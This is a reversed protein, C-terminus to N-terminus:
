CDVVSLALGGTRDGQVQAVHGEGTRRLAEVAQDLSVLHRGDGHLALAAAQSAM